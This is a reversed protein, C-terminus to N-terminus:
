IELLVLVRPGHSPSISAFHTSPDTFRIRISVAHGPPPPRLRTRWVRSHLRLSSIGPLYLRTQSSLPLPTGLHYFIPILDTHWSLWEARQPLQLEPAQTALGLFSLVLSTAQKCRATRENVRRFSPVEREQCM